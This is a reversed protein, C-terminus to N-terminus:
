CACVIWCACLSVRVGLKLRSSLAKGETMIGQLTPSCARHQVVSHCLFHPVRRSTTSCTRASSSPAWSPSSSTTSTTRGSCVWWWRWCSRAARLTSSGAQAHRGVECMVRYHVGQTYSLLGPQAPLSTGDEPWVSEASKLATWAKRVNVHCGGALCAGKHATKLELDPSACGRATM